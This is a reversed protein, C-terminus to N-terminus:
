MHFWRKEFVHFRKELDWQLSAKQSSNLFSQCATSPHHAGLKDKACPSAVTQYQTDTWLSPGSV